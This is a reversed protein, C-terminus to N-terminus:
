RNTQQSCQAIIYTSGSGIGRQFDTLSIPEGNYTFSLDQKTNSWSPQRYSSWLDWHEASTGSGTDVVLLRGVEIDAQLLIYYGVGIQQGDQTRTVDQVQPHNKTKLEM